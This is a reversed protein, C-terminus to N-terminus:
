LTGSIAKIEADYRSEEIAQGRRQKWKVPCTIGKELICFKLNMLFTSNAAMVAPQTGLDQRTM